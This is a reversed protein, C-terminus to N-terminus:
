AWTPGIWRSDARTPAADARTPKFFFLWTNHRPTVCGSVHAAADRARRWTPRLHPVEPAADTSWLHPMVWHIGFLCFVLSWLEWAIPCHLLPHDVSEGCRKRMYCRDLELVCSKHLNDITLIKGFSASWSFFAVRPPVKSQWIM